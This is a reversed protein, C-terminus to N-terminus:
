GQNIVNAVLQINSLAQDMDVEWKHTAKNRAQLECAFVAIVRNNADLLRYGREWPERDITWPRPSAPVNSM